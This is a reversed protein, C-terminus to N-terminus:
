QIPHITSFLLISFVAALAVVGTSYHQGDLEALAEVFIQREGTRIPRFPCRFSHIIHTLLLDRAHFWVGFSHIGVALTEKMDNGFRIQDSKPYLRFLLQAYFEATAKKM